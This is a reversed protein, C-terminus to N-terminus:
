LAAGQRRVVEGFSRYNDYGASKTARAPHVGSAHLTLFHVLRARRRWEAISLGTESRFKRTLTSRSFGTMAALEDLDWDNDPM